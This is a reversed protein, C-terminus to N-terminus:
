IGSTESSMSSTSFDLDDDIIDLDDIDDEGDSTCVGSALSEEFLNYLEASVSVNWRLLELMSAELRNMESISLGGVRAYYANSYIEDDLYKIALVLAVILLRHCNMFSLRLGPAHQQLRDLYIMAVVFASTSCNTYQVLRQVYFELSFPQKFASYFMKLKDVIEAPADASPSICGDNAECVDELDRTIMQVLMEKSVGAASVDGTAFSTAIAKAMAKVDDNETGVREVIPDVQPSAQNPLCSTSSGFETGDVRPFETVADEDHHYYAQDQPKADAGLECQCTCLSSAPDQGRGAAM